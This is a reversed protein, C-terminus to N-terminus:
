SMNSVFVLYPSDSDLGLSSWCVQFDDSLHVNVAQRSLIIVIMMMMMQVLIVVAFLKILSYYLIIYM